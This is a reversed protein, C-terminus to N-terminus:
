KKNRHRVIVQLEQRIDDYTASTIETSISDNTQDFYNIFKNKLISELKKSNNIRKSAVFTYSSEIELKDSVTSTGSLRFVSSYHRELIQNLSLLTVSMRESSVNSTKSASSNKCNASLFLCFIIIIKSMM